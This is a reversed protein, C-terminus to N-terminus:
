KNSYLIFNCYKNKCSKMLKKFWFIKEYWFFITKRLTFQDNRKRIPNKWFHISTRITLDSLKTEFVLHKIRKLKKKKKPKQNKSIFHFYITTKEFVLWYFLNKNFVYILYCSINNNFHKKSPFITLIKLFDEKKTLYFFYVLLFENKKKIIQRKLFCFVM